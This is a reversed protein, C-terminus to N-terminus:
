VWFGINSDWVFAEHAGDADQDVVLVVGGLDQGLVGFMVVPMAGVLGSVLACGVVVVPGGGLWDGPGDSTVSYEAAHDVFVM